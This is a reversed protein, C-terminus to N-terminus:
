LMNSASTDLFWEYKGHFPNINGAPYREFGKNKKVIDSVIKAKDEGTIMFFVNDANNIVRGTLTVRKQGSQPHIGIACVDESNLLQLQNPFISATHGDTGMGLIILDFNPLKNKYRIYEDIEASYRDAEKEPINEGRIRHINEDPIEIKDFLYKKTMGYNSEQDEPPVCREDVWFFHIKEWNLRDKYEEALVSFLTKPTNGGSIAIFNNNGGSRNEEIVSSIRAALNEALELPTKFVKIEPDMNEMKLKSNM